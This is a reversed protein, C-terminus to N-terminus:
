FSLTALVFTVAAVDKEEQLPQGFDGKAFRKIPREYLNINTHLSYGSSCVCWEIFQVYVVRTRKQEFWLGKATPSELSSVPAGKSEKM